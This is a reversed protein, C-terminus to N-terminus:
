ECGLCGTRIKLVCNYSFVISTLSNILGKGVTDTLMMLKQCQSFPGNFFDM